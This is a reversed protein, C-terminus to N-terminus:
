WELLATAASALGAQVTRIDTPPHWTTGAISDGVVVTAAAALGLARTVAFLGAAEMDVVSAGRDVAAAVQSPTEAYIADTTWSTGRQHAIGSRSLAADVAGVLAPDAPVPGSGAGYLRSVGDEPLAMDVVVISGTSVSGALGGAIGVAIFERAGMAALEEVAVAIAPGGPGRPALIGIDERGRRRLVAFRGGAAAADRVDRRRRVADFTPGDLLMLIRGPVPRSRGLGARERWALVAAATVIPAEDVPRDSGSM